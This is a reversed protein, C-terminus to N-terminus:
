RDHRTVSWSPVAFGARVAEGAVFGHVVYEPKAFRKPTIARGALRWVRAIMGDARELADQRQSCGRDGSAAVVTSMQEM